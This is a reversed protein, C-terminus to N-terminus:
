RQLRRCSWRSRGFASRGHLTALHELDTGWDRRRGIASFTGSLSGPNFDLIDFSNGPQPNFGNILSVDLTGGLSLQGTVSIHDYRKKISAPSNSKYLLM